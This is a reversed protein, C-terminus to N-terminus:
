LRMKEDKKKVFNNFSLYMNLFVISAFILALGLGSYFVAIFEPTVIHAQRLFIGISMMFIMMLYDQLRFFFWFEKVTPYSKIRQLHQLSIHYFLKAFHFFILLMLPFYWLKIETLSIYAIVGMRTVNIGAIAWVIAALSLLFRKKIYYWPM